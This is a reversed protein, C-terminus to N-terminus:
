ISSGFYGNEEFPYGLGGTEYKASTADGTNEYYTLFDYEGVILDLDGDSDLDVLVPKNAWYGVNITPSDSGTRLLYTPSIASGINEYYRVEYEGGVVLDLDGDGDLDGLTPASAHYENNMDIGDFPSASGNVLKYTPSAASGNNQFFHLQSDGAGLVIDLDGDGDVDAIAPHSESGVDIGDVPSASGTFAKYTSLGVSQAINEYFDLGGDFSGVVLDFDGDNDVDALAPKSIRGLNIGDFPSDVAEYKPLTATGVCEFYYIGGDNEGFVLDLDGDGDLDAFAPRSYSGVDIDDFPSNTSVEVM